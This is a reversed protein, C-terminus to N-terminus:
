RGNFIIKINQFIKGVFWVRRVREAAILPARALVEGGKSAIIEGIVDGARLPAPIPEEYRAVVRVGASNQGKPLTIAFPKAVTAAVNKKHGYWTPIKLIEDGPKYFVKTSTNSFGHNLLKKMEVALADHNKASFGNIVGILRRGGIKASAAMGYGGDATHGTKLGDAGPMIFLLKNYNLTHTAGWERCWDSKYGGFEFKRTAFMPYMDPHQTILYDALVALERSTMLNDPNPLGSANAFTSQGLGIKRAFLTM